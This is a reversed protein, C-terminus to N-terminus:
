AVRSQEKVWGDMWGDMGGQGERQDVLCVFVCVDDHRGCGDM